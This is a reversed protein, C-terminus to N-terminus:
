ESELVENKFKDIAHPRDYKHIMRHCNACLMITFSPEYTIHHEEIAEPLDYGCLACRQERIRSPNNELYEQIKKVIEPDAM